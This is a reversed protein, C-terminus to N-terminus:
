FVTPILTFLGMIICFLWFKLKLALKMLAHITILGFLFSFGIGFTVVNIDIAANTVGLGISAGLILPISMLFSLKLAVESKFKQFLLFSITLGSRSLGPFISFSQVVGLLVSDKSSLDRIGREEKKKPVFRQILGTIILLVGILAMILTINPSIISLLKYFFFGLFGSIITAIILFQMLKKSKFLSFFILRRFYVIAALLTGCHLWISYQLAQSFSINFFKLMLLVVQSQSSVPLWETLGQVIGLVIAQIITIM